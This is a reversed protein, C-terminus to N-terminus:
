QKEALRFHSAEGAMFMKWVFYGTALSRLKFNYGNKINKVNYQATNGLPINEGDESIEIWEQNEANNNM